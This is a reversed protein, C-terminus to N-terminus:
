KTGLTAARHISKRRSFSGSAGFAPGLSKLEVLLFAFSHTRSEIVDRSETEVRSRIHFKWEKEEQESCGSMIVEYQRQNCEFLLKWTYPATHCQLGVLRSTLARLIYLSCAIFYKVEDTTQIM